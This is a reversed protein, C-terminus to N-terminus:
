QRTINCQKRLPWPPAGFTIIAFPSRPAPPHGDNTFLSHTTNKHSTFSAHPNTKKDKKKHMVGIHVSLEVGKLYAWLFYGVSFRWVCNLLNLDHPMVSAYREALRCGTNMLLLVM